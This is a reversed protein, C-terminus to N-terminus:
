ELAPLRPLVCTAPLETGFFVEIDAALRFPVACRQQAVAPVLKGCVRGMGTEAPGDTVVFEYGEVLLGLAHEPNSLEVALRIQPVDGLTQHVM